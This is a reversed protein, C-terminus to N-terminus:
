RVDRAHPNEDYGPLYASPNDHFRRWCDEKDFYYRQGLYADEFPATKPDVPHNCVPDYIVRNWDDREHGVAYRDASSVKEPERRDRNSYSYHSSCGSILAGMALMALTIIIM